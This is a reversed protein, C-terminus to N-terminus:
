PATIKDKIKDYTSRSVLKAELLEEVRQLPGNQERYDIIRQATVEGIGPLDELQRATATNINLLNGAPALTLPVSNRSPVMVQMEDKLRVALNLRSVDASENPGGAARLADEVRAGDSFTYVGPRVVAGSVHVSLQRVTPQGQVVVLEGQSRPWFQWLLALAAVALLALSLPVRWRELWM